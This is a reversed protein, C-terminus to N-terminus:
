ACDIKDIHRYITRGVCDQHSRCHWIWVAGQDVTLEDSDNKFGFLRLFFHHDWLRREDRVLFTGIYEHDLVTFRGDPADLRAAFNSRVNDDIVAKLAALLDDDFPQLANAWPLRNLGSWHGCTQLTTSGHQRGDEDITRPKRDDDGDDRRDGTQQREVGQRERLVRINHRWLHRHGRSIGAGIGGDHFRGDRLDDLRLDDANVLHNVHLARAAVVATVSKRSREFQTGIRIDVGDVDIIADLHRQGVQRRLHLALADGDLLFRGGQEADNREIRRLTRM